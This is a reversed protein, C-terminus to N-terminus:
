IAGADIDIGANNKLFRMALNDLAAHEHLAKL